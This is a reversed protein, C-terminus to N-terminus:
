IMGNVSIWLLLVVTILVEAQCWKQINHRGDWYHMTAAYMALGALRLVGCRLEAPPVRSHAM